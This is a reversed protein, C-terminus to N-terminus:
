QNGPTPSAQERLKRRREKLKKEAELDILLVHNLNGGQGGTFVRVEFDVCKLKKSQHDLGAQAEWQPPAPLQLDEGLKEIFKDVHSYEPGNYHFTYNQVKGDFLILTIHSMGAFKEKVEYKAPRIQFTSIGFKNPPGSVTANLEADQPSGPFLALVEAPTM